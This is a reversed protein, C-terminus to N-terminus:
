YLFLFMYQMSGLQRFMFNWGFHPNRIVCMEEWLTYTIEGGFTNIINGLVCVQAECLTCSMAPRMGM